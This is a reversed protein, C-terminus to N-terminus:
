PFLTAQNTFCGNFKTFDFAFALVNKDKITLCNTKHLQQTIREEESSL